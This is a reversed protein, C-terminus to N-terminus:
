VPLGRRRASNWAQWTGGVRRGDYGAVVVAAVDLMAENREHPLSPRYPEGEGVCVVRTADRLLAQYEERQRASWRASQGAFTFAWLELGEALVALAWWQDYGLGMGGVAIRTGYEDRLRAAVRHLEDRLWPVDAPQNRRHGTGAVVEWTESM